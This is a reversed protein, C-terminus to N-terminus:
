SLAARIAALTAPGPVGDATLGQGAQWVALAATTKPGLVGDEALPPTPVPGLRNLARQLGLPTSPDITAPETAACEAGPTWGVLAPIIARLGSTIASAYDQINLEAGGPQSPDHFGTFYHSRYMAGALESAGGDALKFAQEIIQRCTARTEAIVHVFYRAGAVDDDFRGFLTFYPGASPSSDVHLEADDPAPCGAAELAATAKAELDALAPQRLLAPHIGAAALAARQTATLSGKTCAGWNHGAWADGCQTEHQAVALALAVGAPALEAGFVDKWAEALSNAKDWWDAKSRSV